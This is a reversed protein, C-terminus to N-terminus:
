RGLTLGIQGVYGLVEGDRTASMAAVCHGAEAHRRYEQESIVLHVDRDCQACHRVDIRDTLAFHEWRRPCQFTFECSLKLPDNWPSADTEGERSQNMNSDGSQDNMGLAESM